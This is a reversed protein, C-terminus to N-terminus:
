TPIKSTPSQVAIGRLLERFEGALLEVTNECGPAGKIGVSPVFFKEQAKRVCDINAVRSSAVVDHESGYRV